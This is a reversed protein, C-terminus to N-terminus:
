KWWKLCLKRELVLNTDKMRSTHKRMVLTHTQTKESMILLYRGHIKSVRGKNMPLDPAVEGPELDEEESAPIFDEEEQDRKPDQM